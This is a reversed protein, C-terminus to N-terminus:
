LDLGLGLGLGLGKVKFRTQYLETLYQLALDNRIEFIM